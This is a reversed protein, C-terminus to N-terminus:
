AFRAHADMVKASKPVPMRSLRAALVEPTLRTLGDTAGQGTGAESLCMSGAVAAAVVGGLRRSVDLRTPIFHRVGSGAFAAAQDASEFADFGAPLVMVPIAGSAGALAMIADMQASEFPNIGTTDILVPAGPARQQLARTLTPPNSAVMLSVGLLRTYAALEEAAGARRGDATIVLPMKGALVLRTALRAMTLTKGAGPPGTLLLPPGDGELPLSSFRLLAPLTEILPGRALREAIDDPVGHWGLASVAAAPPRATPLPENPEQELAATVEVGGAVRRTSIILAQDGLETRAQALAAPVTAARYIRLRM